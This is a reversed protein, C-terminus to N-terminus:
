KISTCEHHTASGMWSRNAILAVREGSQPDVVYLHWRTIVYIPLRIRMSEAVDGKSPREAFLPHTHALAVTGAPIEGEYHESRLNATHPWLL